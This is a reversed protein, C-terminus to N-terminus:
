SARNFFKKVLKYCIMTVTVSILLDWGQGTLLTVQEKM